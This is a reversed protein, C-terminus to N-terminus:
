RITSGHLRDFGQRSMNSSQQQRQSATQGLMSEAMNELNRDNRADGTRKALVNGRNGVRSRPGREAPPSQYSMLMGEGQPLQQEPPQGTWNERRSGPWTPEQFGQDTFPVGYPMRPAQGPQLPAGRGGPGGFRPIRGVLERARGIANRINGGLRDLGFARIPGNFRGTERDFWDGPLWPESAADLFQIGRNTWTGPRTAGTAPARQRHNAIANSGTTPM